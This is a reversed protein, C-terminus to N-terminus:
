DISTIRYSDFQTLRVEKGRLEPVTSNPPDTRFTEIRGNEDVNLVFGEFPIPYKEGLLIIEGRIREKREFVGIRIISFPDHIIKGDLPLDPGQVDATLQQIKTCM